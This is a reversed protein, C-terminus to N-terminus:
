AIAAPGVQAWPEAALQRCGKGVLAETEANTRDATAAPATARASAWSEDTPDYHAAWKRAWPQWRGLDAAVSAVPGGAMVRRVVQRRAAQERDAM